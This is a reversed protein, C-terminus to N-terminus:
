HKAKQYEMYETVIHGLDEIEKKISKLGSESDHIYKLIKFSREQKPKYIYFEINKNKLEKVINVYIFSNKPQIKIQENM